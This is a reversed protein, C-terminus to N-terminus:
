WVVDKKVVDNADTEWDAWNEGSLGRPGQAVDWNEDRFLLYDFFSLWLM